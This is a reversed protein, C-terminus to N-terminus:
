RHIFVNMSDIAIKVAVKQEICLQVSSRDKKLYGQQLFVQGFYIVLFSGPSFLGPNWLYFVHVRPTLHLFFHSILLRVPLEQGDSSLYDFYWIHPYWYYNEKEKLIEGNIIKVNNLVM